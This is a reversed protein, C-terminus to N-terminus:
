PRVLVKVHDGSRAAAFAREVEELPAIMTIVDDPSVAGDAIMRMAVAYDEATYTASGQLRVQQDQIQPLPVPVPAAPVGVVVVTGGKLAMGVAQPVTAQVAVCDFVVDASEGLATRVQQVVDAAGGDVVDDAGLRLARERKAPLVDTVVVRAAGARRAAALVLLGITGAGLVAVTRGSLDADEGPRAGAALRVAHVPTALPEILAAQEDSLGAPVVHLRDTRVTFSRAMGGQPHGCGFFDLRECLNVVGRRCQKCQGCNLTPEVVVRDGVRVQEPGVGTAAGASPAEQAGGGLATVVGVVEHGPRYPLPVFPHHGAVAHLDSGCVGALTSAVVAQDPTPVPVLGDEVLLRGPVARVWRNGRDGDGPSTPEAPV